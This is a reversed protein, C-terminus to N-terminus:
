DRFNNFQLPLGMSEGRLAAIVTQLDDRKKGTVRLKDGQIAAQVKFKQDKIFKVIKKATAQDIGQAFTFNKSFTKGSHTIKDDADMSETDINRRVLNKILIDMIQNVQYDSETSITVTLDKLTIDANVGKFDFRTGLERKSNDVANLLEPADIESVIDFSPM